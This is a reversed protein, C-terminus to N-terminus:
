AAAPEVNIRDDATSPSSVVLFHADEQFPNSVRHILSPVIEVSDGAGLRVASQGAEIHLQGRLVYFLQRSRVHYHRVEGLGPPIREEIVSLDPGNLLRWGDCSGGWTYHQANTRNIVEM